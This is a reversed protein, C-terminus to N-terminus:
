GRVFFLAAMAFGVVVVFGRVAKAPVRKALLPGAFGGALGGLGVLLAPWWAIAPSFLFVVVAAVNMLTAFLIKAGNMAHIDSLGFLTMAALMLFGIGGGFYGGYVAIAAQVAVVAVPGIRTSGGPKRLFSGWGFVATAFLLLWPVLAAFVREPTALLLLGGLAGFMLSVLAMARLPLGRISRIDARYQWASMAQGPFLAITSTVNAAVPPLGAFVLAPFTVFTGGGAAANLVGAAFGAALLLAWTM